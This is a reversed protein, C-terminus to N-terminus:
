DNSFYSLGLCMFNFAKHSIQVRRLIYFHGIIQLLSNKDTSTNYEIPFPLSLKFVEINTSLNLM